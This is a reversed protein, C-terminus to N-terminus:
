ESRYTYPSSSGGTKILRMGDLYFADAPTMSVSSTSGDYYITKVGRTIASLGSIHWGPGMSSNPYQSNYSIAIKPQMGNIGPYVEMPIEFTRAGTKSVGSTVPIYGVICSTDIKRSDPIHAYGTVVGEAAPGSAEPSGTSMSGRPTEVIAPMPFLANVLSDEYERVREDTWRDSDYSDVNCTRNNGSEHGEMDGIHNSVTEYSHIPFMGILFFAIVTYLTKM